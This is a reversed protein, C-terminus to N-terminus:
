KNEGFLLLGMSYKLAQALMRGETPTLTITRCEKDAIRAIEMKFGSVPEVINSLRIVSPTRLSAFALGAIGKGDNISEEYGEFVEVVKEVAIPSLEVAVADKWVFSPWTVENDIPHQAAISLVVNGEVEGDTPFLEIKLASGTGKGNPHYITTKRNM